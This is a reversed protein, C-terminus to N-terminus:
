EWSGVYLYETNESPDGSYQDKASFKVGSKKLTDIGAKTLFNYDLVLRKLGSLDAGALTAAGEDTVCGHELVLEELREILGSKVIEKIGEDGFDASTLNLSKLSTLNKSRCLNEIDGLQIYPEEGPEVAHPLFSISELRTLSKNKALVQFEYDHNQDLRLRRLEPMKLKFIQETHAEMDAELSQLRPMSKVVGTLVREDGYFREPSVSFERLSKFKGKALADLGPCDEDGWDENAFDAYDEVLEEGMLVEDVSLRQLTAAQPSKALATAFDPFLYSVEVSHLFGRAFQFRFIDKQTGIEKKWKQDILFPALDGLWDRQHKKLLTKEQEQLKKRSPARLKENELQLQINMFEGRPDGKEELWDAFVAYGAPDDPNERIEALFPEQAKLDEKAAKLKEGRSEGAAKAEVYGKKTKQAILKEYSKQAEAESGFDKTKTQGDTGQRGYRVTHAKGDLEIIWFKDSGGDHFEFLRPAITSDAM